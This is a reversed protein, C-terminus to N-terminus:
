GPRRMDRRPRPRRLVAPSTRAPMLVHCVVSEPCDAPDLTRARRALSGLDGRLHQLAVIRRDVEQAHHLIVDLVHGCPVEGRERFGIVERIEDLTLGVAQAARVFELRGLVDEGYDRYGGATRAPPALIGIGEYYSLAKVSQGSRRALEGIQVASSSVGKVRGHVPLHVM